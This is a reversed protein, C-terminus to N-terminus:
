GTLRARGKVRPTDEHQPISREEKPKECGMWYHFRRRLMMLTSLRNKKVDQGEGTNEM